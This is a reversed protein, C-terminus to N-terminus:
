FKPRRKENRDVNRQYGPRTASRWWARKMIAKGKYGGQWILAKDRGHVFLHTWWGLADPDAKLYGYAYRIAEIGAVGPFDFTDDFVTIGLMQELQGQDTLIAEFHPLEHPILQLQPTEIM